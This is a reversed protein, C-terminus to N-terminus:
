NPRQSHLKDLLEGIIRLLFAVDTYPTQIGSRLFQEVAILRAKDFPELVAMRDATKEAM